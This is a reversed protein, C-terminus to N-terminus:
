SAVPMAPPIHWIWLALFIVSLAFLIIQVFILIRLMKKVTGYSFIKIENSQLREPSHQKMEAACLQVMWSAIATLLFFLIAFKINTINVPGVGKALLVTVCGSGSFFSLGTMWKSWDIISNLTLQQRNDEM